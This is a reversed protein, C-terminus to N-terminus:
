WMSWPRLWEAVHGRSHYASVRQIQSGLYHKRGMLTDGGVGMSALHEVM